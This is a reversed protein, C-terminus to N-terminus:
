KYFFAQHYNIKENTMKKKMYWYQPWFFLKNIIEDLKNTRNNKKKFILHQFNSIKQNYGTAVYKAAWKNDLIFKQYIMKKYFIPTMMILDMASQLNQREKPLKLNLDDLWLNFCFENQKEKQNYKRHPIKKCFIKWRLKLRTIWLKNAKTIIILDIDDNKKPHGSAVSGSIGILLIDKFNKEVLKGFFKAKKEKEFKWKNKNLSKVEFKKLANKFEKKSYIKDSILRQYIEEENIQSKFKAAYDITEKIAKELSM